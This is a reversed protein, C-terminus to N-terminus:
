RKLWIEVRRNKVRGAETTNDAVPMAEGFGEVTIAKVGKANLSNAVIQARDKSLKLNVGEAGVSDAFGILIVKINENGNEALYGALRELNNTSNIDPKNSGPAFRINAQSNQRDAGRILTKYGSDINSDALLLEKFKNANSIDRTTSLGQGVLGVKDVVAQGENSMTYRVFDRALSSNKSDIPLYFYLLRSLPYDQTKVTLRTPQFAQLGASSSIALGTVTSDVYSLGCFGIGTSDTAVNRVLKESDKFRQATNILNLKSPKMVRAKFTDWTGSHDDRAYVKIQKDPGGVASWNKIEGAFIKAVQNTTLSQIPLNRNIIVAVGDLAIPFESAASRFNGLKKDLLLQVETPKVQRSAMGIDAFGGSIGVKPYESTNSFATSSGHASIEISSLSTKGPLQFSITSDVGDKSTAIDKYGQKKLFSRLLEPALNAGVTNSGHVRLLVEMESATLDVGMEKAFEEAIEKATKGQIQAIISFQRLRDKNEAELAKLASDGIEGVKTLTGRKTEKLKNSEKLFDILATRKGRSENIEEFEKQPAQAFINLHCLAGLMVLLLLKTKM